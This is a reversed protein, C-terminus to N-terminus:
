LSKVLATRNSNPSVAGCSAVNVWCALGPSKPCYSELNNRRGLSAIRLGKRQALISNLGDLSSKIGDPKVTMLWNTKNATKASRQAAHQVGTIVVPDVRWLAHVKQLLRLQGLGTPGARAIAIPLVVGGTKHRLRM